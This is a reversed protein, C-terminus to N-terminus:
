LYTSQYKVEILKNSRSKQINNWKVMTLLGNWITLYLKCNASCTLHIYGNYVKHQAQQMVQEESFIFAKSYIKRVVWFCM